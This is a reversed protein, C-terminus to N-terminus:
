PQGEGAIRKAFQSRQSVGTNYLDEVRYLCLCVYVNGGLSQARKAPMHLPLAQGLFGGFPAQVVNCLCELEHVRVRRRYM